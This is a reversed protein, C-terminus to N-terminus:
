GRHRDPPCPRDGPYPLPARPWRIECNVDEDRRPKLKIYTQMEDPSRSLRFREECTLCPKPPKGSNVKARLGNYKASTWIDAFNEKTLNGMTLQPAFCCARVDGEFSIMAYQWPAHCPPYTEVPETSATDILKPLDLYIGTKKAVEEAQAFIDACLAQDFILNEGRLSEEWVVLHSVKVGDVGAENALEVLRTLERINRAMAVFELRILYDLGERERRKM